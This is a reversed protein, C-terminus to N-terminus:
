RNEEDFWEDIMKYDVLQSTADWFLIHQNDIDVVRMSVCIPRDDIHGVTELWGFVETWSHEKNNSFDVSCFQEWIHGAECSNAEVAYVCSRLHENYPKPIDM